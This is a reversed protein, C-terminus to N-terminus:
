MYKFEAATLARSNNPAYWSSPIKQEKESTKNRKYLQGNYSEKTRWQQGFLQRFTSDSYLVITTNFKLLNLSHHPIAKHIILYIDCKELVVGKVYTKLTTYNPGFFYNKKKKKWVFYIHMKKCDNWAITFM